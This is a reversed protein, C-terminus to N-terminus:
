YISVADDLGFIDYRLREDLGYMLCDIWQNGGLECSIFESFVDPRM